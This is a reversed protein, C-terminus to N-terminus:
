PYKYKLLLIRYYDFGCKALQLKDSCSDTLKHEDTEVYKYIYTKKMQLEATIAWEVGKNM